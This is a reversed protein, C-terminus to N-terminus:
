SRAIQHLSLSVSCATTCGVSRFLSWIRFFLAPCPSFEAAASAKFLQLMPLHRGTLLRRPGSWGFEYLTCRGAILMDMSQAAGCVASGIAFIVLSLLMIARRGFAQRLKMLACPVCSLSPSEYRVCVVVLPCPRLLPWLIGLV